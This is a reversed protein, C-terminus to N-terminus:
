PKYSMSYNMCSRVPQGNKTAARFRGLAFCKATAEDLAQIGSSQIVTVPEAMTNDPNVCVRVVVTEIKALRLGPPWLKEGRCYDDESKIGQSARTRNDACAQMLAGCALLMAVLITRKM